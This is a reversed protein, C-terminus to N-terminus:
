THCWCSASAHVHPDGEFWAVNAFAHLGESTCACFGEHTCRPSSDKNDRRERALFIGEANAFSMKRRILRNQPSRLVGLMCLGARLSRQTEPSAGMEGSGSRGTRTVGCKMQMTVSLIQANVALHTRTMRSRSTLGEATKAQHLTWSNFSGSRQARLVARRLLLNLKARM